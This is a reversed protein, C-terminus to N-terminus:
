WNLSCGPSILEPFSNMTKNRLCGTIPQLPAHLKSQLAERTPLNQQGICLPKSNGKLM